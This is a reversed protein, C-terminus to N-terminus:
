HVFHAFHLLISMESVFHFPIKLLRCLLIFYNREKKREKKRETSYQLLDKYIVLFHVRYLEHVIKINWNAM